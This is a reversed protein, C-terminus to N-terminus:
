YKGGRLMAGLAPVRLPNQQQTLLAQMLAMAPSTGGFQLNTASPPHVGGTVGGQMIPKVPEPAKLQMPPKAVPQVGAGAGAGAAAAIPPAGVGGRLMAGVSGDDTMTGPVNTPSPLGIGTGGAGGPVPIQAQDLIKAMEEPNQGAAMMLLSMVYPDM